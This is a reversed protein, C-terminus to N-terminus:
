EAHYPKHRRVIRLIKIFNWFEGSLIKLNMKSFIVDNRLDVHVPVMKIGSTKCAIAIFEMDFLFREIKTHLFVKKGRQNFGKLGCQTDTIPLRFVVKFVFRLIKSIWKRKRPTNDYYGDNRTGIAIDAGTELSNIIRLMSDHEYPFDIDTYVILGDTITKIGERLAFGKGRNTPYTIYTFNSLHQQLYETQLASVGTQSADNVVVAHLVYNPLLQQLQVFNNALQAEWGTAPNYCPVVIHLNQSLINQQKPL